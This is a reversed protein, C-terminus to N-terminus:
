QSGCEVAFSNDYYGRRQKKAVKWKLHIIYLRTIFCDYHLLLRHDADSLEKHETSVVNQYLGGRRERGKGAPRTWQRANHTSGSSGFGKSAPQGALLKGTSKLREGPAAQRWCLPCCQFCCPTRDVLDSHRENRCYDVLTARGWVQPSLLYPDFSCNCKVNVVPFAQSVFSFLFCCLAEREWMGKRTMIIIIVTWCGHGNYASFCSSSNETSSIKRRLCKASDAYQLPICILFVMYLRISHM